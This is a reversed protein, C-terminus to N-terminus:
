TLTCATTQTQLSFVQYMGTSEESDHLAVQGYNKLLSLHDPTLRNRLFSRGVICNDNVATKEIIAHMYDFDAFSLIDSLSYFVDGKTENQNQLLKLMDGVKYEITIEENLLRQRISTLVKRQLSPPLDEENMELLHGKFILHMMFCSSAKENKIIDDLAAPILNLQAGAGIFAEDGNGFMTYVFKYSFLTQLMKWRTTSYCRQGTIKSFVNQFNKGLWGNTIPRARQLFKEYHGTNLIGKKICSLHVQWFKYAKEPLDYKLLEFCAIRENGTSTGHGIFQLYDDVSLKTLAAIKLQLLFIAEENTDIVVFKRCEKNDMLSLVREGSGCIAVVIPFRGNYLMAREVRNDENIHSYYIM